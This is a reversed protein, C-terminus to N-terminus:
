APIPRTRKARNKETTRVAFMQEIPQRRHPLARATTTRELRGAPMQETRGTTTSRSAVNTGASLRLLWRRGGAPGTLGGRPPRVAVPTAAHGNVLPAVHHAANRAVWSSSRLARVHEFVDEHHLLLDTAIEQRVLRDMVEVAPLIVISRLIELEPYSRLRATNARRVGDCPGPFDQGAVAPMPCSWCRERRKTRLARPAPPFRVGTRQATVSRAVVM